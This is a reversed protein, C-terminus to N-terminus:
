RTLILIMVLAFGGLAVPLVPFDPKSQSPPQYSSKLTTEYTPRPKSLEAGVVEGIGELASQWWPTKAPLVNSVIQGLGGFM